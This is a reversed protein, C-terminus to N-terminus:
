AHPPGRIRDILVAASRPAPVALYSPAPDPVYAPTFYLPDEPALLHNAIAYPCYSQEHAQSDHQHHTAPEAHSPALQAGAHHGQHAHHGHHAHADHEHTATVAPPSLPLPGAGSCLVIQLSGDVWALMFGAPIVARLVLLPLLWALWSRAARKNMSAALIPLAPRKGLNSGQRKDRQWGRPSQGITCNGGSATGNPTDPITVGHRLGPVM